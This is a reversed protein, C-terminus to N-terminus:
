RYRKGKQHINYCLKRRSQLFRAAIRRRTCGKRLYCNANRMLYCQGVARIGDAMAAIRSADLRLRDLMVPAIRGEAAALDARNAELIAETDALLAEAMALLLANKKETPLVALAPAAAKAAQMIEKTTIM